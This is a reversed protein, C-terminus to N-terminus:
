GLPTNSLVSKGLRRQKMQKTVLALASLLELMIKEIVEIIAGTLPTRTYTNLRAM